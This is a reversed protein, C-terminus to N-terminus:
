ESLSVSAYRGDKFSYVSSRAEIAEYVVSDRELRFSEGTSSTYKGPPLKSIVSLYAVDQAPSLVDEKMVAGHRTLIVLM